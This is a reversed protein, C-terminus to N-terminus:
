AHASVPNCQCPKIWLRAHRRRRDQGAEGGDGADHPQALRRRCREQLLVRVEARARRHREQEGGPEEARRPQLARRHRRGGRGGGGGRRVPVGHVGGDEEPREGAAAAHGRVPPVAGQRPVAPEGGLVRPRPAMAPRRHLQRRLLARVGRRVHVRRRGGGHDGGDEQLLALLLGAHGQPGQLHLHDPLRRRRHHAQAAPLLTPPHRARAAASTAVGRGRRHRRQHRRHARRSADRLVRRLRAPQSPPAPPRRRLAPAGRPERRRLRAGQALQHRVQPLQRPARRGAGARLQHPPGRRGAPPVRADLLRRASPAPVAAVADGAPAVGGPPRRHDDQRRRRCRAANNDGRM